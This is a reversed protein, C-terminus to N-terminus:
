LTFRAKRADFLRNIKLQDIRNMIASLFSSTAVTEVTSPTTSRSEMPGACPADLLATRPIVADHSGVAGLSFTRM